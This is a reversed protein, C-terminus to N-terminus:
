QCFDPNVQMECDSSCALDNFQVPELRHVDYSFDFLGVISTFAQGPHRYDDCKNVTNACTRESYAPGGSNPSRWWGGWEHKFFTGIEVGLHSTTESSGAVRFYGFDQMQAPDNNYPYDVCADLTQVNRLEILVGEYAEAQAGEPLAARVEPDGSVPIRPLGSTITSVDGDFLAPLPQTIASGSDATNSSKNLTELRGIQTMDYYEAPEGVLTIVDGIEPFGNSLDQSTTDKAFFGAFSYNTDFSQSISGANGCNLLADGELGDCESGRVWRTGPIVTVKVGSWPLLRGDGDVASPDAVYFGFMYYPCGYDNEIDLCDSERSIGFVPSTVVVDTLRVPNCRDSTTACVEPHNDDDVNQVEVISHDAIVRAGGASVIDAATRPMIAFDGYFSYRVVGTISTFTETSGPGYQYFQDDILAGGDVQFQGYSTLSGDLFLQVSVNELTVLVGEWAEASSDSSFDTAPAVTTAVSGDNSRVSVHSVALQTETGSNGTQGSFESLTGELDVVDGIAVSVEGTAVVALIGSYAGGDADSVFFGDLASSVSFVPSTVVVGALTIAAAAGPYNPANENQLDKIKLGTNTTGGDDGVTADSGPGGDYIVPGSDTDTDRVPCAALILIPVLALLVLRNM